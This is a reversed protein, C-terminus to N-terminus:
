HKYQVEKSIQFLYYEWMYQVEAPIEIYGLLWSKRNTIKSQFDSRM